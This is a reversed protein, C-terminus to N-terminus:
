QQRKLETKRERRRERYLKQRQAEAKREAPSRKSRVEKYYESWHKKTAEYASEYDQHAEDEGIPVKTTKGLVRIIAKITVLRFNGDQGRKFDRDFNITSVKLRDISYKDALAHIDAEFQTYTNNENM